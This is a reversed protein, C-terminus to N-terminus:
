YTVKIVQRVNDIEVKGLRKLVSQGLLLPAEQGKVVSARVNNLVLGEALEIRDLNIVTGAVIDGSATRYSAKGIVDKSSLYGNKFMFAAEVSSITVDGAGTDFIFHLPLGNVKCSVEQVGSRRTFAIEATQGISTTQKDDAESQVGAVKGRYEEMLQRFAGENRINDMDHDREIHTFSLYGMEFAQRLYEIAKEKQNMRSYLCAADYYNGAKNRGQSLMIDLLRVANREDGLCQAAYWACSMDSMDATDLELCKLFDKRAANRDGLKLMCEGRNLYAYAYGPNQTLCATHDEAAGEYDGDLGKYWGRRYYYFSADSAQAICYDLDKYASKMDNLNYYIEARSSRYNLDSSDREIAKNIYELANNYDGMDSYCDAIGYHFMDHDEKELAQKFYGIAKDYKHTHQSICGLSYPWYPNNPEKNMQVKLRSAITFYSSDALQYLHLWAKSDHDIDLATVIDGAAEDFRGLKMYAEARFSYASSYSTGAYQVAKDLLTLAEKLHNQRLQNRGLATFGIPDGPNIQCYKRYDGDSLDFRGQYFYVDARGSYLDANEPQIKIAANYNELAKNTDKIRLYANARQTLAFVQYEADKKPLFKLAESASRIASGYEDYMNYALGMWAHAYGNKPNAEIEKQLYTAMEVVDGNGYAEMARSMNASNMGYREQAFSFVSVAVMLLLVM